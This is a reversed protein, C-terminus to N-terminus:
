KSRLYAVFEQFARGRHSIKNKIDLDIEAFTKDYGDPVFVPDYGFGEKGRKERIITGNVIGEFFLVEDNIMYCIVTRFRAKRDEKDEMERLLKELNAKDSKPEGAYRASHVGPRGMLADVELGTDDAFVAKGTQNFVFAAKEFANAKLTDGNEPIDTHFGIDELDVVSVISETMKKIEKSKHQNHTAFILEM